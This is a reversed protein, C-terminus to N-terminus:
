RFFRGQNNIKKKDKQNKIFISFEKETTLYHRQLCYQLFFKLFKLNKQVLSIIFSVFKTFSLTLIKDKKKNRLMKIMFTGIILNHKSNFNQLPYSLFKIQADTRVHADGPLAFKAAPPNPLAPTSYIVIQSYISNQM